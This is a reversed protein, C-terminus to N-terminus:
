PHRPHTAKRLIHAQLERGDADQIVIHKRDISFKMPQYLDLAFPTKSVVVYRCNFGRVRYVYQNRVFTRGMPVTKRSLLEGDQWSRGVPGALVKWPALLLLLAVLLIQRGRM